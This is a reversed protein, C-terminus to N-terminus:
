DFSTAANYRSIDHLFLRTLSDAGRPNLHDANFFYDPHQFFLTRYNFIASVNPYCSVISDISADFAEYDVFESASEVYEKTLPSRYLFVEINRAECLQLIREFYRTMLSDPRSDEYSSVFSNAREWGAKTKNTIDMWRKFDRPPRYGNKMVSFDAFLAQISWWGHTYNGLYCCCRAALYHRVYTFDRCERALALYDLRRVWYDHFRMTSLAGPSFASADVPFVICSPQIGPRDIYSKLKYYTHPFLEHPSAYNFANGLIEPNLPNHSNGILLMGTLSDLADFQEDQHYNVRNIIMFRHYLAHLLFNGTLVLVAAFLVKHIARWNKM